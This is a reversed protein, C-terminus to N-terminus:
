FKNKNKLLYFKNNILRYFLIINIIYNPTKNQTKIYLLNLNNIIKFM